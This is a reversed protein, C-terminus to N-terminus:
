HLTLGPPKAAGVQVGVAAAPFGGGVQHEAAVIHDGFPADEQGFAGGEALAEDDGFNIYLPQRSLPPPGVGPGGGGFAEVLHVELHLQGGGGEGPLDGGSGKDGLPLLGPGGPAPLDQVDLGVTELLPHLM